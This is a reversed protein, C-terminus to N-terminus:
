PTHIENLIFAWKDAAEEIIKSTPKGAGHGAKTEIRILVPNSGAHCEQLRAAYKFSHAPVVRDDTDATTILISPYITGQKLNHYPSYAYLAMFEEPSNESNGYDSTWAWGITFKQFRLMDMVGVAPLAVRFLDPRQNVCAGVLLGGNSGGGIALMERSTLNKEILYEAASIFDNFVNQKNLKTGAQHWEEGYEGGGRLNAQAYIGGMEMWALNSVSFRPPLSINFGGYGYLYAPHHHALDIDKRHVIFMPIRTGDHSPFFVQRTVYDLPNFKLEPESYLSSELTTLDLQYISGPTNFSTMSYWTRSQQRLGDFGSVSGIGPLELQRRFVGDLAHVKIASKADELYHLILNDGVIHASTLTSEGQPVLTKWLSRQPNGTDISIIKGKPANLDTKIWFTPGDNGLFSYEADFDNLLEVVPNDQSTLNKYFLRNQTATGQWVSLILYEGDESVEGSFGWEKHDPREYVLIDQSQDTGVQHFYLKQYYNVQDFEEGSEPKDYRSYYFGSSDKMWSAGSFKAWQVSDPLDAGTQINRLRWEKWDSGSRSIAYALWEGNPSVAISSLAVTGDTSLTNPDILERAKSAGADRVYLVNQNQLGSNHFHFLRDGRQFPVGFKEYDWLETIRERISERKPLHSLFQSTLEVQSAIWQKTQPSDSEELWRYPDPVITGFFNDSHDSQATEPYIFPTM